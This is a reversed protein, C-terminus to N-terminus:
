RMLRWADSDFHQMGARPEIRDMSVGGKHSDDNGPFTESLASPGVRRCPVWQYRTHQAVM